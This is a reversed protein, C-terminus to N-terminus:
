RPPQGMPPQGGPQPSFGGVAPAGAPGGHSGPGGAGGPGKQTVENAIKKQDESLSAYIPNAAALLKHMLLANAESLDAMKQIRDIITMPKGADHSKEAKAATDNVVEDIATVVAPWLQEQAPTLNLAKKLEGLRDATFEKLRAAREAPTASVRPAPAGPQAIKGQFPGNPALTVPDAAASFTSISLLVAASLGFKLPSKM